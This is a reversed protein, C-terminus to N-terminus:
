ARAPSGRADDRRRAAIVPRAEGEGPPAGAELHRDDNRAAIRALLVGGHAREARVEDFEPAVKLRRSLLRRPERARAAECM